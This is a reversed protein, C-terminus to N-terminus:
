LKLACSLVGAIAHDLRKGRSSGWVTCVASADKRCVPDSDRVYPISEYAVPCPYVVVEKYQGIVFGGDLWVGSHSSPDSYM